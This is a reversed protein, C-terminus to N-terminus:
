PQTLNNIVGQLYKKGAETQLVPVAPVKTERKARPKKRERKPKEDTDVLSDIRSLIASTGPPERLQYGSAANRNRFSSIILACEMLTARIEELTTDGPTKM